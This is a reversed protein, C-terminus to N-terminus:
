WPDAYSVGPDSPTKARNYDEQPQPWLRERARHGGAFRHLETHRWHDLCGAGCGHTDGEGESIPNPRSPGPCQHASTGWCDPWAGKAGLGKGSTLRDWSRESAELESPGTKWLRSGQAWTFAESTGVVAAPM